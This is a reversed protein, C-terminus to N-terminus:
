LTEKTYVKRTIVNSSNILFEKNLYDYYTGPTIIGNIALVGKGLSGLIYDVIMACNTKLVFFKKHKGRTIRKFKANALKYLDSSMDNFDGNPIKGMEYLQLDPYYDETDASILDQIRKQVKQKQESTLSLGFIVLYRNKNEIAYHIYKEKDAICIIGDGISDFLKRSHRNYNGYSYIKNEFAVEVHGMAASGNKALHIIVEIDPTSNSKSANFHKTDHEVELMDNIRSLLKQPIFATFLLPLSVKIREKMRNTITTPLIMQIFDIFYSIGLFILYIGIVIEAYKMNDTPKYILLIAFILTAIGKCLVSFSGRIHYKFYLVYNIFHLASMVLIYFGFVVTLSKLIFPTQYQIFTAFLLQVGSEVLTAAIKGRRKILIMILQLVARFSIGISLLFLILEMLTTGNICTFIGIIIFFVSIAFLTYTEIKKQIMPM